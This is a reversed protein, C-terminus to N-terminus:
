AVCPLRQAFALDNQRVISDPLGYRQVFIAFQQNDRRSREFTLAWLEQLPIGQPLSRIIASSISAKLLWCAVFIVALILRCYASSTMICFAIGGGAGLLWVHIAFKGQSAFTNTLLIALGALLQITPTLTHSSAQDWVAVFLCAVSFAWGYLTNAEIRRLLHFMVRAGPLLASYSTCFLWCALPLGRLLGAISSPQQTVIVKMLTPEWCIWTLLFLLQSASHVLVRGCQLRPIDQFVLGPLVIALAFVIQYAALSNTSSLLWSRNSLLWSNHKLAANVFYLSGAADLLRLLWKIPTVHNTLRTPVLATARILLPLALFFAYDDSQLLKFRNILRGDFLRYPLAVLSYFALGVGAAYILPLSLLMQNPLTWPAASVLTIGARRCVPCSQGEICAFCAQCICRHRCPHCVYDVPKEACILCVDGLRLDYVVSQKSSNIWRTVLEKVACVVIAGAHYILFCRLPDFGLAWALFDFQFVTNPGLRNAANSSSSFPFYLASPNQFFYYPQALVRHHHESPSYIPFCAVVFLYAALTTSPLRYELSGYVCALAVPALYRQLQQRSPLGPISLLSTCCRHLVYQCHFLLQPAAGNALALILPQTQREFLSWAKPWWPSTVHYLIPVMLSSELLRASRAIALHAKPSTSDKFHARVYFYMAITALHLHSCNFVDSWPVPDYSNYTVRTTNLQYTFLGSFFIVSMIQSRIDLCLSQPTGAIIIKYLAVFIFFPILLPSLVAYSASLCYSWTALAVQGVKDAILQIAM